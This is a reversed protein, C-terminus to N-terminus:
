FRFGINGYAGEYGIYSLLSDDFMNKWHSVLYGAELNFNTWDTKFTYGLGGGTEFIAVASDYTNTYSYEYHSTTSGCQYSQSSSSCTYDQSSTYKKRIDGYLFSAGINAFVRFASNFPKWIPNLNLKPGLGWFSSKRSTYYSYNTSYTNSSWSDNTNWYQDDNYNEYRLGISAKLSLNNEFVILKSIDFNLENLNLRYYEKTNWNPERIDAVNENMDFHIYKFGYDWNNKGQYGATIQFAPLQVIRTSESYPINGPWYPYYPYYPLTSTKPRLYLGGASAFFGTKETVLNPLNQDPMHNNKESVLLEFKTQELESRIEAERAIAQNVEKKLKEQEAKMDLIMQYLQENTPAAQTFHTVCVLLTFLILRKKYIM